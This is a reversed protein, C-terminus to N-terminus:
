EKLLGAKKAVDELGSDVLMKASIKRLKKVNPSKTPKRVNIPLSEVDVGEPTVDEFKANDWNNQEIM